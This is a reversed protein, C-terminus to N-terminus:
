SASLIGRDPLAWTIRENVDLAYYWSGRWDGPVESRNIIEIIESNTRNTLGRYRTLLERVEEVNDSNAYRFIINGFETVHQTVGPLHENTRMRRFALILQSGLAPSRPVGRMGNFPSILRTQYNKNAVKERMMRM